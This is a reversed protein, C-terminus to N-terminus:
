RQERELLSSLQERVRPRDLKGAANRPLEDVLLFAEPVAYDAVRGLLHSRVVELDLQEAGRPVIAAIVREGFIPHPAGIVAAQAVETLESLAAEVHAAHIKEGARNIVDAARGAVSLFGHQDVSGLDGTRLWDGRFVKRTAAEDHWYGLMRMPGSVWIEGSEGPPLERRREDAVVQRVDKVPRGVADGRTLAYEPTLLHTVSTFETLGYCNFLRLHPWRGALEEIWAAPMSAGGYAGIRCDRFAADADASLMLLRFISPVAILFTPPRRALAAIAAGVSFEPVLDVAGGVLTMQSLQDVFGTNHFLPVLVTTRDTSSTQLGAVYASASRVLAGHQLVAGRPSGTTGSTFAIVAPADPPPPAGTLKARPLQWLSRNGGDRELTLIATRPAIDAQEMVPVVSTGVLVLRPATVQLQRSIELPSLRANLPVVIAGIRLGAFFAVTWEVSNHGLLVVREGPQVGGGNLREAAEKVVTELDRYGLEEAGASLAPANPQARAWHRLADPITLIQEGTWAHVTEIM